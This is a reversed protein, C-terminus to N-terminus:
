LVGWETLRARIQRIQKDWLIGGPHPRHTHIIWSENIPHFFFCHSGGASDDLEFDFGRMLKVLETWRFDTVPPDKLFREVLKGKKSM